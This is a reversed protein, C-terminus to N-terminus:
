RMSANSLTQTSNQSINVYAEGLTNNCHYKAWCSYERVM